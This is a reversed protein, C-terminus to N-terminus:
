NSFAELTGECACWHMIAEGFKAAAQAYALRDEVQKGYTVRYTHKGTQELQLPGWPTDAIKICLKTM